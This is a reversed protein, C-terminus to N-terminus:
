SQKHTSEDEDVVAIMRELRKRKRRIENAEDVDCNHNHTKYRRLHLWANAGYKVGKTVEMAEHFTREDIEDNPSDNLVSPWILATGKRPFVDMHIMTNDGAIDNFRTAGGEEVNNLYMFVTLIRPGELTDGDEEHGDHHIKYYQGPDYKVLQLSEQYDDPVGTLREIKSLVQKVLPDRYCISDCWANTSTRHRDESKLAEEFEEESLDDEELLGSPEYGEIAGLQILRDCEIDSLFNDITIVWPRDLNQSGYLHSSSTETELDNLPRSLINVTYPMKGDKAEEVIREFMRNLDGPRFIDTSRDPSCKEMIRKEYELTNMLKECTHCSPSCYNMMFEYIFSELVYNSDNEDYGVPPTCKGAAALSNCYTDENYCETYFSETETRENKDNEKLADNIFNQMYEKTKVINELIAKIMIPDHSHDPHIRQQVGIYFESDDDGNSDEYPILIDVTTAFDSQICESSCMAFMYDPNSVCEGNSAKLHCQEIHSHTNVPLTFATKERKQHDSSSAEQSLGLTLFFLLNLKM